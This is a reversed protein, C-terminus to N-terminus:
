MSICGLAYTKINNSDIDINLLEKFAKILKDDVDDKTDNLKDLSVLEGNDIIYVISGILINDESFEKFTLGSDEAIALLKDDKKYYQIIEPNKFVYDKLLNNLTKREYTKGRIIFCSTSSNSVFGGKIKM